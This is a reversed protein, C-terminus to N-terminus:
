GFCGAGASPADQLQNIEGTQWVPHASGVLDIGLMCSAQTEYGQASKAIAVYSDVDLRWWFKNQEDAYILFSPFPRRSMKSAKRRAEILQGNSQENLVHPLEPPWGTNIKVSRWFEWTGM